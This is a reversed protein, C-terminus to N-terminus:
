GNMNAHTNTSGTAQRVAFHRGQAMAPMVAEGLMHTVVGDNQGVVQLSPAHRMCRGCMPTLTACLAHGHTHRPPPPPAAAAARADVRGRTWVDM